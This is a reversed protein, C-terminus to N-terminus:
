RLWCREHRTTIRPSNTRAPQTRPVTANRPSMRSPTADITWEICSQHSCLGLFVVCERGGTATAGLVEATRKAGYSERVTSIVAGGAAGRSCTPTAAAREKRIPAALDAGPEAKPAPAACNVRLRHCLLAHRACSPALRNRVDHPRTARRRPTFPGDTHLPDHVVFARKTAPRIHRLLRLRPFVEQARVTAPHPQRRQDLLDTLSRAHRDSHSLLQTGPKGRPREPLSFAGSRACRGRRLLPPRFTQPTGPIDGSSGGEFRRASQVAAAHDMRM